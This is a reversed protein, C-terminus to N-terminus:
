RHGQQQQAVNSNTGGNAIPPNRCSSRDSKRQQVHELLLQDHRRVAVGRCFKNPVNTLGAASGYFTTAHIAALASVTGISQPSAWNVYGNNLPTSRSGALRRENRCKVIVQASAPAAALLLAM